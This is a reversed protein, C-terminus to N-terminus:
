EEIKEFRWFTKDDRTIEELFMERPRIWLQDLGFESEGDLHKYVVLEKNPDETDRAVGIVLYHGGKFHKWRSGPKPDRM